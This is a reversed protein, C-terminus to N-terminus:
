RVRIIYDDGSRFVIDGLKQLAEENINKFRSRELEGVIIYSIHHGRLFGPMASPYKAEYFETIANQLPMVVTAYANKEEASTRWLWEHTQWGLVTPLGTYASVACFETYSLGFAELIDPQGAVEKNLYDILALRHALPYLKGKDDKYSLKGYYRTGELSKRRAMTLPGYWAKIEPTYSFPVLYLLVAAALPILTLLRIGAARKTVGTRLLHKPLKLSTNLPTPEPERQTKPFLRQWLLGLLFGGALSLLSFAQYTFKFMTNARSFNGEYIDRVYVIEPAAILGFGCCVLGLFFVECPEMSLLRALPSKAKLAKLSARSFVFFCILYLIGLGAHAFWLVFLALLGSWHKTLVLAKSMPDFGLNFSLAAIQALAFLWALGRGARTFASPFFRAAATSLVAGALLIGLQLLPSTIKLFPVFVLLLQVLLLLFGKPGGLAKETGGYAAILLLFFVVVYIVFDWYNCMAMVGLLISAALFNPTLLEPPLKNWIGKLTGPRGSGRLKLYLGLLLGLFLLCLSLNVMHAHLDAVIYSYYPFEHITKDTTEPNYGIYRTSDAFFYRTLDGVNVGSRQLFQMFPKGLRGPAYFFAHSNGALTLLSAAALGGFVPPLARLRSGRSSARAFLADRVVAFSLSFSLAFSAAVSLNYGAAPETGLIKCVATYLYQGFYYYNISHGSLWMDMAPLKPNRWLSMMFGYDMLKELGYVEPKHARVYSWFLLLLFFLGSEGLRLGWVAPTERPSQGRTFALLFSVVGFLVACFILGGRTFVPLGAYALIWVAFGPALLGLLKGYLWGGDPSHPFLKRCLPLAILSFLFFGLCWALYRPRDVPALVFAGAPGAIFLLLGPLVRTLFEKTRDETM